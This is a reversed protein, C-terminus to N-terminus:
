GMGSLTAALAFGLITALGAESGSQEVAEPAMTDIIMTLLAGAAFAQVLYGSSGITTAVVYGVGAAVSSLGAIGVWM